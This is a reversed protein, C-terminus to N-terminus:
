NVAAKKEMHRQALEIMKQRNKERMEDLSVVPPPVGAAVGLAKAVDPPLDFAMDPPEGGAEHEKPGSWGLMKAILHVMQYTPPNDRWHAFIEEAEDLYM